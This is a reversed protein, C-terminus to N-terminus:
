FDLDLDDLIAADEASIANTEEEKNGYTKEYSKVFPYWILISLILQVANVVISMPDMNTLFGELFVGVYPPTFTSCKMIGLYMAWGGLSGIIGGCIVFPIFFMPNLVIPAGFLIPENIGFLAPIFSLRGVQKLAKNKSMLCWFVCGITVGSGTFNGFASEPGPAYFHTAVHGAQVAAINEALFQTSIPSTIPSLVSPHIGFFFILAQLMKLFTYAIPNDMSGVLPAFIATFILPPMTNLVNVCVIRVILFFGIIIVSIPIMEFSRSVFDPVTDPMKITFNKKKCWRFLEVAIFGAFMACFLGKPGLYTKSIGGDETFEVVSMLAMGVNYPIYIIDLNTLIWQSIVHKEGIMNPIAEPILCFSGIILLPTMAVMAKKVASLHVEKDMKDALPALYKKMFNEFKSYM